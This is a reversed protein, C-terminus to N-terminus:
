RIEFGGSNRLFLIFQTVDRMELSTPGLTGGLKKRLEEVPKPYGVKAQIDPAKRAIYEFVEGNDIKRQLADALAISNEADLGDDDNSFWYHCAATEAPCLATMLQALVAWSPLNRQFEVGSRDIPQLGYVNMGM